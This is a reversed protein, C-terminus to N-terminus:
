KETKVLFSKKLQLQAIRRKTHTYFHNKITQKTAQSIKLELLNKQLSVLEEDIEPITLISELEKFKPLSM